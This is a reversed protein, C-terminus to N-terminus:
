QGIPHWITQMEVNKAILELSDVKTKLKYIRKLNGVSQVGLEKWCEQNQHGYIVSQIEYHGSLQTSLEKLDGNLLNVVGGPLDSTHLAEGLPAIISPCGKGMLVILSNGSVIVAAIVECLKEFNFKDDEVFVTVGIPTPTTFNHYPGNVSNVSCLLQSYKDAWGAFSVFQDIGKQVESDAVSESLGLINKFLDSFEGKKGQVMEAIRYLIQGRNYAARKSWGVFAKTAAEVSNRLDKRSAQNVRAYEKESNAYYTPISRGSETRPFEGGIFMKITKNVNM